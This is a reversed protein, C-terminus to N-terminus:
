ILYSNVETKIKLDHSISAAPVIINVFTIFSLIKYSQNIAQIRMYM